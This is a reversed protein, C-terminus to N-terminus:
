KIAHALHVWFAAGTALIADNFDFQPSHLGPNDGDRAAGLWLYAGPTERLMFAFDESAMSPPTDTTDLGMGAGIRRVLAAEPATNITAPYRRQYDITARCGHAATIGQTVEALRTELTDGAADAFWRVTGRLIARDPCVNWTSGTHIQTVSIVGSDLPSLRRAPIEQLAAALRGAAAVVGDSQEPMAAHGGRGTIEIEFVAFAAMMDSDRCVLRGPALGPWNHIGYVSHIPFQRFLGDQVMVRAGGDNEEAPQFILTVPQDTGQAGIQQAALLLMATHGDHGCAHMIGPTASAYGLGTAETIPLADIDARFGIATGEGLCAVVGTGALRRHVQWGWGSLLGAIMDSTRQEQFGLEPHRHLDHRWAIAQAIQDSDFM